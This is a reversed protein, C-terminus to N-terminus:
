NDRYSLRWNYFFTPLTGSAQDSLLMLYIGGKQIDTSAAGNYRIHHYMKKYVNIQKLTEAAKSTHFVASKIIKFRGATNSNLVQMPHATDLVDGITPATDGIQQTDIFIMVRFLTDQATPNQYCAVKLNLARVLVSNGTRSADDNGTALPALPIITHGTVNQMGSDYKFMESNVLGRIYRVGSLAKRALQLTSYKRNYWAARRRRRRPFRRRYNRPM